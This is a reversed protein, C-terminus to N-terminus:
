GRCLGHLTTPHGSGLPEFVVTQGPELGVAGVRGAALELCGGAGRAWALDRWPRLGERVAVVRWTQPTGNVALGDETPDDAALFVADIPFRMFFMHISADGPLWLGEGDGLRSRGMLGRFRRWVSRAVHVRAALLHGGPTTRVSFVPGPTPAPYSRKVRRAGRPPIKM